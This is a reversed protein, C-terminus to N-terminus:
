AAISYPTSLEEMIQEYAPMDSKLYGYRILFDVLIYSIQAKVRDTKEVLRIVEDMPLLEFHDVEMKKVVQPVFGNKTNIDFVHFIEDQIFGASNHYMTHLEAGRKVAHMVDDTLGCEEEGEHLLADHTTQGITMCGSVIMDYCGVSDDVGAGRVALWMKDDEYAHLMVSERRIGICAGYFRHVQFLPNTWREQGVPLWDDGGMSSYDPKIPFYGQASIELFVDHVTESIKEFGNLAPNLTLRDESFIWAFDFSGMLKAFDKKTWGIQEHEVYVPVFHTLDVHRHRLIHRLFPM